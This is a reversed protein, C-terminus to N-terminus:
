TVPHQSPPLGRSANCHCLAIYRPVSHLLHFSFLGAQLSQVSGGQWGLVSTGNSPLLLFPLYPLPKLLSLLSSGCLNLMWLLEVDRGEDRRIWLNISDISYNKRPGRGQPTFVGLGSAWHSPHYQGSWRRTKRPHPLVRTLRVPNTCTM